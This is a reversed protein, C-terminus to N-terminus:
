ITDQSIKNQWKEWEDSEDIENSIQEFRSYYYKVFAYVDDDIPVYTSNESKCFKALFEAADLKNAYHRALNKYNNLCLIKFRDYANKSFDISLKEDNFKLVDAQFLLSLHILGECYYARVEDVKMWGVLGIARAILEHFVAMKYEDKENYFFNILGGSTAKYEEIYKFVGSKNMANETDSSIFLIHGFEHGITSIEYVKKWVDPKTFLIERGFDLFDKSFIEASLKSFPKAKASEYVYNVFAFIKKGCMKSVSEDNPVVQASFLGNLEAGYFIFPVCVYLQTKQINSLVQNKMKDDSIKLEDYVHLFSDTINSKFESEDVGGDDVLRVDWELAVAHIYADEYYELPHGPQIPSKIDMWAIEADQWAKIVRDNERENFADKLKSFYNIYAKESDTKALKTLIKIGKEFEDSVAKVEDGFAVAYTAFSYADGNKIVAGYSRDAIEDGDLHYLKNDKIFKVADKIDQFKLEFEKNTTDIIKEQWAKQWTNIKLGVNHILILIEVNFEDLIKEKKIQVIMDAHDKEYINKVYEYMKERVDKQRDDSFGLKKLENLLPDVKLDVIRRLVAIKESKTGSLGSIELGKLLIEDDLNKYLNNKRAKFEKAIENLRVFNNM